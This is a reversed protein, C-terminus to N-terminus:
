CKRNSNEHNNLNLFLNVLLGNIISFIIIYINFIITFSLGFYYIMMPVLPIKVSRNYLFTAIYKNQMGKDKLDSLIPYWMYIPGSSIIGAIITILWGKFGSNHGIHKSIKKANFFLDSLFMLIFIFALTPALKLILKSLAILTKHFLAINIFGIILYALSIIILFIWKGEIKELIKNIM